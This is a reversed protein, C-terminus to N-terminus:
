YCFFTSRTPYYAAATITDSTYVYVSGRLPLMATILGTDSIIIEDATGTTAFPNWNDPITGPAAVDSVRVVSNLIVYLRLLTANTM